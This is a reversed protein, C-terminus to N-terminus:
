KTTASCSPWKSELHALGQKCQGCCCLSFKSERKSLLYIFVEIRCYDVKIQSVGGVWGGMGSVV